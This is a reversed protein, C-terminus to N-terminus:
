NILKIQMQAVITATVANRLIIMSEFNSILQTKAATVAGWFM